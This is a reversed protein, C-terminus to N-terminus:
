IAYAHQQVLASKANDIALISSIEALPRGRVFTAVKACGLFKLSNVSMDDAANILQYLEIKNLKDIFEADWPDACVEAMVNSRLPAPIIPPEVGNHHQMYEVIRGLTVGNIDLLSILSQADIALRTEVFKSIRVEKRHMVFEKGDSSVLIVDKYTAYSCVIQDVGAPLFTQVIPLLEDRYIRRHSLISEFIDVQEKENKATQVLPDTAATSAESMVKDLSEIQEVTKALTLFGLSTM